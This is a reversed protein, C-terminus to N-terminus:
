LAPAPKPVLILPCWASHALAEGTGGLLLHAVPGWRRSGVVLLDVERSRALLVDSPRGTQTRVEAQVGLEAVAQELDTSLRGCEKDLMEDWAEVAGGMWVERWGLSPVRDDIVGEVLLEAGAAAALQAAVALAVRSEPSGDCGVGVRRLRRDEANRYGSPAIAVACSLHDFLQRAHKGICVAGAEGRRSSGIVLLDRHEHRVCRELGRWTALDTEIRLDAEPAYQERIRHLLRETQTRMTKWDFGPIVLRLDPEVSILMLDASVARALLSALAAADESQAYADIGAAVQSLTPAPGAGTTAQIESPTHTSM